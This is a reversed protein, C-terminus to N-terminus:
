AACEKHVVERWRLEIWAEVQKLEERELECEAHIAIQARLNKALQELEVVSKTEYGVVGGRRAAGPRCDGKQEKALSGVSNATPSPSLEIALCILFWTPFAARAGKPHMQSKM